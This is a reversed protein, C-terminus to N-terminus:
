LPVAAAKVSPPLHQWLSNQTHPFLCGHVLVPCQAAGREWSQLSVPDPLTSINPSPIHPCSQLTPSKSYTGTISVLNQSTQAQPFVALMHPIRPTKWIRFLGLVIASCPQPSINSLTNTNKWHQGCVRTAACLCQQQNCSPENQHFILM